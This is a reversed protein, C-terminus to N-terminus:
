YMPLPQNHAVAACYADANRITEPQLSGSQVQDNVDNLVYALSSNTLPYLQAHVMSASIDLDVQNPVACSGYNGPAPVLRSKLGGWTDCAMHDGQSYLSAPASAHGGGCAGLGTGLGTISVAAGAIVALKRIKM